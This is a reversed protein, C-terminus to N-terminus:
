RPIVIELRASVYVLDVGFDSLHAATQPVSQPALGVYVLVAAILPKRKPSGQTAPVKISVTRPGTLNDTVELPVQQWPGHESESVAALLTNPTTFGETTFELSATCEATATEGRCELPVNPNEIIVAAGPFDGDNAMVGSACFMHHQFENCEGNDIARAIAQSESLPSVDFGSSGSGGCGVIACAIAVGVTAAILETRMARMDVSM